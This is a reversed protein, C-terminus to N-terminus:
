PSSSAAAVTFRSLPIIPHSLSNFFVWIDYFYSGPLLASSDQPAITCTFLADRVSVQTWNTKQIRPTDHPDPTKKVCLTITFGGNSDSNNADPIPAAMGSPTVVKLNILLDQARVLVIPQPRAPAVDPRRNTGDDLLGTLYIAAPL